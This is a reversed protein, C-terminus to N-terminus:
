RLGLYNELLFVNKEYKIGSEMVKYLINDNLTTVQYAEAAVLLTDPASGAAGRCLIWQASRRASQRLRLRKVKIEKFYQCKGTKRRGTFMFESSDKREDGCPFIGLVFGPGILAPDVYM